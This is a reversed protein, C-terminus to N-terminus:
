KNEKKSYYNLLNEIKIICYGTYMVGILSLLGTLGALIISINIDYMLGYTFMIASFFLTTYWVGTLFKFFKLNNELEKM